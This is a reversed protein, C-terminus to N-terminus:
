EVASRSSSAAVREAAPSSRDLLQTLISKPPGSAKGRKRDQENYCVAARTMSKHLSQQMAEPLHVGRNAADTLYGSRLGHAFFKQPDVSAKHCRSKLDPQGITADINTM